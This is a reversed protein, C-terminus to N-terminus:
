YDTLDVIENAGLIILKNFHTLKTLENFKKSKAKTNYTNIM